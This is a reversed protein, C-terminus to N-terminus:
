FHLEIPQDITDLHLDTQDKQVDTCGRYVNEDSNMIRENTNKPLIVYGHFMAMQLSNGM